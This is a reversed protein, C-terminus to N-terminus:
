SHQSCRVLCIAIGKDDDAHRAQHLTRYRVREGPRQHRLGRTAPLRLCPCHGGGEANYLMERVQHEHLACDVLGGEDLTASRSVRPSGANASRVLWQAPLCAM